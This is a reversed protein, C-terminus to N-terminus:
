ERIRVSGDANTDNREFIANGDADVAETLEGQVCQGEVIDFQEGRKRKFLRTTKWTAALVKPATIELDDALTDADRLHIREVIHMGGNNPIGVGENLAIVAQPIVAVTDVVLTNDEWHGISHGHITLDPDEPHKRGDTYIRRIRNGDGEGLMTVRGPTTLIEMANHTILMWAPMGHPLCHALLLRPRGAREEAFLHDIQRRAASTWPADNVREQRRQDAVDPVWVGSLDPLRALAEWASAAPAGPQAHAPPALFCAVALTVTLAPVSTLFRSRIM